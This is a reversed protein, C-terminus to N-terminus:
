RAAQVTPGHGISRAQISRPRVRQRVDCESHCRHDRDARWGSSSDVYDPVTAILFDVDFRSDNAAAVLAEFAERDACEELDAIVAKSVYGKPVADTHLDGARAGVRALTRLMRAPDAYRTSSGAGSPQECPGHEPDVAKTLGVSPNSIPLQKDDGDALAASAANVRGTPDVDIGLSQGLLEMVPRLQKLPSAAVEGDTHVPASAAAVTKPESPPPGPRLFTGTLLGAVLATASLGVGVKAREAM